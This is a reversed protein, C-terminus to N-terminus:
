FLCFFITSSWYFFSFISCLVFLIKQSRTIKLVRPCSSGSLLLKSVVFEIFIVVIRCAHLSSTNVLSSPPHFPPTVQCYTVKWNSCSLSSAIGKVKQHSAHPFTWLSHFLKKKSCISSVSGIQSQMEAQTCSNVSCLDLLGKM